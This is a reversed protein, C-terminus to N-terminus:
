VRYHDAISRFTFANPAVQRALDAMRKSLVELRWSAYEALMQPRDADSALCHIAKIRGNQPAQYDRPQYSTVQAITAWESAQSCWRGNHAIDHPPLRVM